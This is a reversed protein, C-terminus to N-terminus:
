QDENTVRGTEKEDAKIVMIKSGKSSIECKREENSVLTLGKSECFM